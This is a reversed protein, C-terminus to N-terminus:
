YFLIFKQQKFDGLECYKTIAVRSVSVRAQTWVETKEAKSLSRKKKKENIKILQLSRVAEATM